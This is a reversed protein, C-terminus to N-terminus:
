SACSNVLVPLSAVPTAARTTRETVTLEQPPTSGGGGALCGMLIMPIVLYMALKQM